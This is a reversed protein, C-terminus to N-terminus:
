KKMGHCTPCVLVKELRELRDLIDKYHECQGRFHPNDCTMTFEKEPLCNGKDDKVCKKLDATPQDGTYSIQEKPENIRNMISEMLKVSTEPVGPMETLALGKPTLGYPMNFCDNHGNCVMQQSIPDAEISTYLTKNRAMNASAEDTIFGDYYVTELEQNFHFTVEGIKKDSDHEWNLPVKVKDFRALEQKTYLNGNRSIRPILAVGTIHAKEDIKSYAEIIM